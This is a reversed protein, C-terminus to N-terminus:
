RGGGELARWPSTFGATIHAKSKPMCNNYELADINFLWDTVDIASTPAVIKSKVTNQALLRPTLENTAQTAIM